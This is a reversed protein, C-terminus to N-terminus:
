AHSCLKSERESVAGFEGWNAGYLAGGFCSFAAGGAAVELPTNKPNFYSIVLAGVSANAAMWDGVLVALVGCRGNCGHIALLHIKYYEAPLVM